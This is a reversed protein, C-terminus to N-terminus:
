RWVIQRDICTALLKRETPDDFHYALWKVLSSVPRVNDIQQLKRSFNAVVEPAALALLLATLIRKM